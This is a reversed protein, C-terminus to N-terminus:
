AEERKQRHKKYSWLVIRELKRKLIIQIEEHKAIQGVLISYIGAKKAGWVDTFIQDGILLTNKENSGMMVMAAQYGKPSPKGAKYVYRIQVKDAFSKVRPEKNNSVVTIEFGMSKLRDILEISQENAPAGHEVLTNDIDYIIGKYGKERLKEYDVTYASEQMEDPYFRELMSVGM